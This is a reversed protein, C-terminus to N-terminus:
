YILMIESPKGLGNPFLVFFADHPSIVLEVLPLRLTLRFGAVNSLLHTPVVFIFSKNASLTVLLLLVIVLVYLLTYISVASKILKLESMGTFLSSKATAALVAYLFGCTLVQSNILFFIINDTISSSALRRFRRNRFM